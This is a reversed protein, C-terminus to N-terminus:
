RVEVDYYYFTIDLAARTVDDVGHGKFLMYDYNTPSMGNGWTLCLGLYEDYSARSLVTNIYYTLDVEYYMKRRDYPNYVLVGRAPQGNALKVQDLIVNGKNVEFLYFQEPIHRRDYTDEVAYLRLTAKVIHQYKYQNKLADLNPFNIRTYYGLGEYMASCSDTQSETVQRYRHTLQDYPPAVDENWVHNFQKEVEALSFIRQIKTGELDRMHSHLTISASDAVFALMADTPYRDDNCTLQFGKFFDEFSQQVMDDKLRRTSIIFDRIQEGYADDLRFRLRPRTVPRPKFTFHGVQDDVPFTRVNYFARENQDAFELRRAMRRVSIDFIATTDGMWQTSHLLQITVSDYKEKGELWGYGAAGDKMTPPAVRFFAESHITGLPSHIEQATKRPNGLRATHGVWLVHQNSTMVSDLRFTSLSLPTDDSTEAYSDSKVFSDNMMFDQDSCAAALAALALTLALTPAPAARRGSAATAAPRVTTNRTTSRLM